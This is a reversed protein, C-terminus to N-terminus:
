RGDPSARARRERGFTDPAVPWRARSFALRLGRRVAAVAEASIIPTARTPNMVIRALEVLADIPRPRRRARQPGVVDDVGPRPAVAAEARRM